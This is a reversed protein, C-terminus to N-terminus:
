PRHRKARDGSRGVATRAEIAAGQCSGLQARAQALLRGTDLEPGGLEAGLGASRIDPDVAVIVLVQYDIALERVRALARRAADSGDYGVVLKLGGEACTM